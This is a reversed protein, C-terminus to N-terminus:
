VQCFIIFKECVSEDWPVPILNSIVLLSMLMAVVVVLILSEILIRKM